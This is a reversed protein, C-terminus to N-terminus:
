GGTANNPSDPIATRLSKTTEAWTGNGAVSQAITKVSDLGLWREHPHHNTAFPHGDRNSLRLKKTPTAGPAFQRGRTRGPCNTKTSIAMGDSVPASANRNAPVPVCINKSSPERQPRQAIHSKGSWMAPHEEGNRRLKARVHRHGCHRVGERDGRQPSKACCWVSSGIFAKVADRSGQRRDSMRRVRGGADSTVLGLPLLNCKRGIKARPCMGVGIM